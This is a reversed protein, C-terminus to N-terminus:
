AFGTKIGDPMKKEIQETELLSWQVEKFSNKRRITVQAGAEYENLKKREGSATKM